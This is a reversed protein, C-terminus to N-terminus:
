LAAVGLVPLETKDALVVHASYAKEIVHYNTAILDKRSVLFGSGQSISRGQRDVTAEVQVIAPSCRVFVANAALPSSIVTGGEHGVHQDLAAAAQRREPETPATAESTLLRHMVVIAVACVAVVALWIRPQRHTVGHGTAPQHAVESPPVTPPIYPVGTATAQSTIPEDAM